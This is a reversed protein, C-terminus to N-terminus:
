SRSGSSATAAFATVTRGAVAVLAGEGAALNTVPIKRKMVSTPLDLWALHKGSAPSVVDIRAGVGLYLAKPTLIPNSTLGPIWKSWRLAGTARAEAILHHETAFYLSSPGVAPVGGYTGLLRGSTTSLIEGSSSFL